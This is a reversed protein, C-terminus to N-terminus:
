PRLCRQQSIRRLLAHQVAHIESICPLARGSFVPIKWHRIRPELSSVDVAYLAGVGRWVLLGHPNADASYQFKAVLALINRGVNLVLLPAM